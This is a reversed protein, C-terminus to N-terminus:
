SSLMGLVCSLRQAAATPLEACYAPQEDRELEKPDPEDNKSETIATERSYPNGTM